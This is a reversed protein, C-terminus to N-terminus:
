KVPLSQKVHGVASVDNSAIQQASVADGIGSKPSIGALLAVSLTVVAISMFVGTTDRRSRCRNEEAASRSGAHMQCLTVRSYRTRNLM